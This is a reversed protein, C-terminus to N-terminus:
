KSKYEPYLKELLTNAARWDRPSRKTITTRSVLNGEENFKEHREVADTGREAHDLIINTLKKAVGSRAQNVAKYFAAYRENKNNQGRTMWERYTANEIGAAKCALPVTLGKEICDVLTDQEHQTIDKNIKAM